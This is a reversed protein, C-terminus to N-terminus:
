GRPTNEDTASEGARAHRRACFSEPRDLWPSQVPRLDQPTMGRARAAALAGIAAVATANVIDGALVMALADDLPFREIQLDAEEHEPEPREVESLDEALYVRVSEDTFGPSLAIDLLVSWSAAALGTEEALERQAAALPDEGPVDLLGAPIEWLRRGIPHRYQYVLVLRDDADIAVIAVAGDHEVVEREAARGGPMVVQDLRLAVIAGNYATRSSLTEFEHRASEHRVESPDDKAGM